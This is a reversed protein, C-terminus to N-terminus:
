VGERSVDAVRRERYEKLREAEELQDRLRYAAEAQDRIDRMQATICTGSSKQNRELWCKMAAYINALYQPPWRPDNVPFLEYKSSM